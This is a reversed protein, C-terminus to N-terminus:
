VIEKRYPEAYDPLDQGAKLKRPYLVELLFKRADKLRQPDEPRAALIRIHAKDLADPEPVHINNLRDWM